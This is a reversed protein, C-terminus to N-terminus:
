EDDSESLQRWIQSKSKGTVAEIERLTLGIEHLERFDGSFKPHISKFIRKIHESPESESSFAMSTRVTNYIAAPSYKSCYAKILKKYLALDRRQDTYEKSFRNYIEIAVELRDEQSYCDFDVQYDFRRKLAPDLRSELNTTAIIVAENPLEDLCRLLTSTVRSMERLDNGELRSLALADLEDFLFISRGLDSFNKIVEFSAMINKSTQGLKSDILYPVNVIFLRRKLVNAVKKACETKGTGPAGYFLFKNVGRGKAIANVIGQLDNQVEAPIVLNETISAIESFFESDLKEDSFDMSGQPRVGFKPNIQARLYAALERDGITEFERIIEMTLSQFMPENREYHSRILDAITKKKM